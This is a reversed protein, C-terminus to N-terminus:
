KLTGLSLGRTRKAEDNIFKALKENKIEINVDGECCVLYRNAKQGEVPNDEYYAYLRHAGGRFISHTLYAGPPISYGKCTPLKINFENTIEPHRELRLPKFAFVIKHATGKGMNYLRYSHRTRKGLADDIDETASVFILSPKEQSLLFAREWRDRKKEWTDRARQLRLLVYTLFVTVILNITSVIFNYYDGFVGWDGPEKSLSTKSFMEYHEWVFWGPIIMVAILIFIEWGSLLWEKEEQDDPTAM